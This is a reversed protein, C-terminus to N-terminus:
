FFQQSVERLNSIRNDSRNRNIHDIQNKPFHGYVYLWALRHAYYFKGDIMIHIYGNKNLHGAINNTKIGRRKGIWIFAGTKMPYNFLEQLKKQTLKKSM